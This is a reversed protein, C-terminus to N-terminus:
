DSSCNGRDKYLVLAAERDDTNDAHKKKIRDCAQSFKSLINHDMVFGTDAEIVFGMGLNYKHRRTLWMGDYSVDVDMIGDNDSSVDREHASDCVCQNLIPLHEEYMKLSQQGRCHSFMKWQYTNLQGALEAGFSFKQIGIHGSGSAMCQDVVGATEPGVKVNHIVKVPDYLYLVQDCSHCTVTIKTDLQIHTLSVDIDQDFEMCGLERCRFKRALRLMAQNPIIVM